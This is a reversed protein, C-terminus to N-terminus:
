PRYASLAKLAEGPVRELAVAVFVQSPKNDRELRGGQRFHTAAEARRGQAWRSLGLYYHYRADQDDARVAALFEQEAEAYRSDRYARLGQAFHKYAPLTDVPAPPAVDKMAPPKPPPPPETRASVVQLQRETQKLQEETLKLKRDLAAALEMARDADKKADRAEALGAALQQVQRELTEKATRLRQVDERLGGSSLKERQLNASAEVLEERLQKDEAVLQQLAATSDPQPSSPVPDTVPSDHAVRTDGMSEEISGNAPPERSGIGLALTAVCGLVAGLVIGGVFRWDSLLPHNRAPGQSNVKEAGPTKAAPSDASLASLMPAPKVQPEPEAVPVALPVESRSSASSAAPDVPRYDRVTAQSNLPVVLTTEAPAEEEYLLVGFDESSNGTAAPREDESWIAQYAALDDQDECWLSLDFESHSSPCAATLPGDLEVAVASHAAACSGVPEADFLDSVEPEELDIRSPLKIGISPALPSDECPTAAPMTAVALLEV